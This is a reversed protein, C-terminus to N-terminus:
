NLKINKKTKTYYLDSVFCESMHVHRQIRDILQLKVRDADIIM